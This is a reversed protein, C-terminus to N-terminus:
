QENVANMYKGREEVNCWVAVSFLSVLSSHGEGFSAISSLLGVVVEMMRLVAVVMDSIISEVPALVFLVGDVGSTVAVIVVVVVLLVGEAAMCCMLTCLEPGYM